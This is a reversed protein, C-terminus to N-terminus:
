LIGQLEELVFLPDSSFHLDYAQKQIAKDLEKYM